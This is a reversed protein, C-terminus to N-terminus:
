VAGSDLHSLFGALLMKEQEAQRRLLDGVAAAVVAWVPVIIVLGLGACGQVQDEGVVEAAIFRANEGRQTVRQQCMPIVVQMQCVERRIKLRVLPQYFQIGVSVGPRALGDQIQRAGPLEGAIAGDGLVGGVDPLHLRTRYRLAVVVLGTAQSRLRRAQKLLPSSAWAGLLVM